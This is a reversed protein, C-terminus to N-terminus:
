GPVFVWPFVGAMGSFKAVIHCPAKPSCAFFFLAALPIPFPYLAAQVKALVLPTAHSFLTGLVKGLLLLALGLLFIGMVIVLSFLSVIPNNTVLRVVVFALFAKTACVVGM